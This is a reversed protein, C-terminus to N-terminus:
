KNKEALRIDATGSGIQSLNPVSVPLQHSKHIGTGFSAIQEAWQQKDHRLSRRRPGALRRFEELDNRQMANRYQDIISLTAQSIWPKKAYLRPGLVERVNCVFYRCLLM